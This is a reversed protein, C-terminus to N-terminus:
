CYMFSLVPAFSIWYNFGTPRVAALADPGVMADM